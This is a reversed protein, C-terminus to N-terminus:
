EGSGAMLRMAALLSAEDGLVDDADKLAEEVDQRVQQQEEDTLYVYWKGQEMLERAKRKADVASRFLALAGKENEVRIAELARNSRCAGLNYWAETFDPQYRVALELSGQMAALDGRAYDGKAREYADRAREDLGDSRTSSSPRANPSRTASASGGESFFEEVPRVRGRGECAALTLLAAAAVALRRLSPNM